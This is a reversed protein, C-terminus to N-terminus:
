FKPRRRRQHIKINEPSPEEDRGKSCAEEGEPHASRMGKDSGKKKLINQREGRRFNPNEDKWKGKRDHNQRRQTSPNGIPYAYSDRRGNTQGHDGQGNKRESEQLTMHAVKLDNPSM